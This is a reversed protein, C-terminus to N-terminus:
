LKAQGLKLRIIAELKETDAAFGRVGEFLKDIAMPDKSLHLYFTSEDLPTPPKEAKGEQPKLKHQITGKSEALEKILNPSLTLKECGAIETIQGKTRFSAGMIITKYGYKQYYSHIDKILKCGLDEEPKFDKKEKAKYWDSTRGVFPSILTVKAEACAVAQADANFLLTLNTHIGEKELKEAAKIGQWTSAIKILIRDKDVGADKYMRILKRAKEITKETDFSLRADVETSVVGPVIKLIEVGFNVALRDLVEALQEKSDFKKAYTVADDVLNAYQSQQAAKLLLSPNTTADQPKYKRIQDIDGTDAVIVSIKKLQDLESAM